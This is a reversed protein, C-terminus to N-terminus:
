VNQTDRNQMARKVAAVIFAVLHCVLSWWLTGIVIFLATTLVIGQVTTADGVSPLPVQYVLVSAPINLTFSLFWPWSESHSHLNALMGSAEYSCLAAEILFVTIILRMRMRFKMGHSKLDLAM